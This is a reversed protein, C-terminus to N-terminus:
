KINRELDTLYKGISYTSDWGIKELINDLLSGDKNCIKPLTGNFTVVPRTIPYNEDCIIVLSYIMDNSAFISGEFTKLERDNTGYSITSFKGVNELEEMLKFNRPQITKKSKTAEM